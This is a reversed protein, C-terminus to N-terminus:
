TQPRRKRRVHTRRRSGLKETERVHSALRIRALGGIFALREKIPVIDAWWPLVRNLWDIVGDRDPGDPRKLLSDLEEVRVRFGEPSLGPPLLRFLTLGLLGGAGEWGNDSGNGIRVIESAVQEVTYPELDPM